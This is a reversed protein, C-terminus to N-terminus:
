AEDKPPTPSHSALERMVVWGSQTLEFGQNLFEKNKPRLLRRKLLEDRVQIFQGKSFSEKKGTWQGESFPKGACLGQALRIMKWEPVQFQATVIRVHGRDVEQLDVRVTHRVEQPESDPTSGVVGDQNLDLGTLREWTTLYFWHRQLLLWVLTLLVVWTVVAWFLADLIQMRARLLGLFVLLGLLFGTVASQLFPVWAAAQPTHLFAQGSLDKHEDM